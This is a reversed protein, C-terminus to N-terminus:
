LTIGHRKAIRQRLAERKAAAAKGVETTGQAVPSETKSPAEPKANNDSDTVFAAGGDAKKEKKKDKEKDDGKEDKKKKLFDPLEKKKKAAIVPAKPDAQEDRDSVFEISGAEKEIEEDLQEEAPEAEPSELEEKGEEFEEEDVEPEEAEESPYEGNLEEKGEEGFAEEAPSLNLEIGLNEALTEVAGAVDDLSHYVESLADAIVEPAESALERFKAAYKRATAVRVKISATKPAEILDLNTRLNHLSDAMIGLAEALEAIAADAEKPEEAAVQRLRAWKTSAEKTTTAKKNGKSSTAMTEEVAQKAPRYPTKLTSLKHTREFETLEKIAAELKAVTEPTRPKGALYLYRRRLKQHQLREGEQESNMSYGTPKVGAAKLLDESPEYEPMLDDDEYPDLEEEVSSDGRISLAKKKADTMTRVEYSEGTELDKLLFWKGRRTPDIITITFRDDDSQVTSMSIRKWGGRALKAMVGLGRLSAKDEESFEPVENEGFEKLKKECNLAVADGGIDIDNPAPNINVRVYANCGRCTAEEIYNNISKWPSLDHGRFTATEQAENKLNDLSETRVNDAGYGDAMHFRANPLEPLV